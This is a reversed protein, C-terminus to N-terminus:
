DFCTNAITIFNESESFGYDEGHWSKLKLSANELNTKTLNLNSDLWQRCSRKRVTRRVFSRFGFNKVFKSPNLAENLHNSIFPKILNEKLDSNENFKWFGNKLILVAPRL